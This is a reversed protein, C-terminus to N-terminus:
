TLFKVEQAIQGMVIYLVLDEDLASGQFQHLERDGVRLLELPYAAQLTRYVYDLLLDIERGNVLAHACGQRLPLGDLLDRPAHLLLPRCLGEDQALPYGSKLHKGVGHKDADEV